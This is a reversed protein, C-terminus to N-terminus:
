IGIDSFLRGDMVLLVLCGDIVLTLEWMSFTGINLNSSLKSVFSVEASFGAFFATSLLPSPLICM